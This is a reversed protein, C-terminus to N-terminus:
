ALGFTAVFLLFVVYLVCVGAGMLGLARVVIHTDKSRLAVVGYYSGVILPVIVLGDFLVNNTFRMWMGAHFVLFAIGPSLMAIIAKTLSHSNSTVNVGMPQPPRSGKVVAAIFALVFIVAIVDRLINM